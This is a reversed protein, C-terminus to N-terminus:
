SDTIMSMQMKMEHHKNCSTLIKATFKQNQPRITQPKIKYTCKKIVVYNSRKNGNSKITAHKIQIQPSNEIEWKLLIWNWWFILHRQQKPKNCAKRINQSWKLWKSTLITIRNPKRHVNEIFKFCTILKIM